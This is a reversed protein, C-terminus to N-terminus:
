INWEFKIRYANTEAAPDCRSFLCFPFGVEDELKEREEVPADKASDKADGEQEEIAKGVSGMGEGIILIRTNGYDLPEAELPM